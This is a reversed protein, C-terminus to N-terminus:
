YMNVTHKFKMGLVFVIDLFYYTRYRHSLGTFSIHSTFLNCESRIVLTKYRAHASDCKLAM